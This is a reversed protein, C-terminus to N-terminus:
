SYSRLRPFSNTTYKKSYVRANNCYLPSSLYHDDSVVSFFEDIRYNVKGLVRPVAAFRLEHLKKEEQIKAM